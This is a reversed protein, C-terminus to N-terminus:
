CGPPNGGKEIEKLALVAGHLNEVKVLRLGTPATARAEACNDKPVLFISAGDRKAGLMKQTVGGIPGVKGDADITGTGAVFKGGTLDTGSIKEIIGLAFMLGASPGGINGLSFNITYPAVREASIFVGLAAGERGQAKTTTVTTTANEGKRVYGVTVTTGPKLASLAGTLEDPSTVKAGNLSTVVDSPELRGRSPSGDALKKVVIQQPFNLEGLAAAQAADQSEVFEQTNEQDVQKQTKDPPYIEERPVVSVEDDFWGRLATLLDLHDRVGVTTLQLHGSTKPEKKRGKSDTVTIVKTGDVAGLTNVTPGPGLAAYPVPIRVGVVGLVVLLVAGVSMTVLRRSM